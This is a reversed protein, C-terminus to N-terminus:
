FFNHIKMVRYGVIFQLIKMSITSYGGESLKNILQQIDKDEPLLTALILGFSIGTLELFLIPIMIEIATKTRRKLINKVSLILLSISLVLMIVTVCLNNM